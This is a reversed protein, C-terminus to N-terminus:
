ILHQTLRDLYPRQGTGLKQHATPLDFWAARDIEPFTALRGSKPPWEMEFTGPVVTAPDLDAEVAWVTLEKTSKGSGYRVEGLPVREGEPVPLGLEETFERAAAADPSEHEPEYEGKPISWAGADKRAWFPGGMHGILVETGGSQRRFLLIGASFKGAM